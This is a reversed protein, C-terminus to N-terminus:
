STQSRTPKWGTDRLTKLGGGFTSEASTANLRTAIGSSKARTFRTTAADNACRRLVRGFERASAPSAGRSRAAAASAAIPRSGVARASDSAGESNTASVSASSHSCRCRRLDVEGENDPREPVVALVLDHGQVLTDAQVVADVEVARGDRADLPEVAVGDDPAREVSEGLLRAYAGAPAYADLLPNGDSGAKGASARVGCGGQAKRVLREVLRERVSREMVDTGSEAGVHREEQVLADLEAGAVARREYGDVHRLIEPDKEHERVARRLLRRRRDVAGEVRTVAGSPEVLPARLEEIDDVPHPPRTVERRERLVVERARRDDVLEPRETGEACVDAAGTRGDVAEEMVPSVRHSCRARKPAARLGPYRWWRPVTSGTNLLSEWCMTSWPEERAPRQSSAFRMRTESHIAAISDTTTKKECSMVRQVTITSAITATMQQIAPRSLREVVTRCSSQIKAAEWSRVRIATIRPQITLHATIM